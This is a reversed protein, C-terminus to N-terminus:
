PIDIDIDADININRDIDVHIDIDSLCLLGAMGRSKWGDKSLHLVYTVFDKQM